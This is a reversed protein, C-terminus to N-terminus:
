EPILGTCRWNIEATGTKEDVVMAPSCGEKEINVDFWWTQTYDNYVFDGTFQDETIGSNIAIAKAQEYTYVTGPCSEERINSCRQWAECWAEDPGCVCEGDCKGDALEVEEVFTQGNSACQRPYSEMVPNGAAVCEEFNTITQEEVPKEVACGLALVSIIILTIALYRM